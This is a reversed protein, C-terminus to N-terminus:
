IVDEFLEFYGAIKNNTTSSLMILGEGPELEIPSNKFDISTPTGATDTPMRAVESGISLTNSVVVVFDTNASASFLKKNDFKRIVGLASLNSSDIRNAVVEAGFANVRVSSVYAVVGSGVPNYAGLGSYISSIANQIYGSFYRNGDKTLNKFQSLSNVDGVARAEDYTFLQSAHYDVSISVAQDNFFEISDIVKDVASLKSGSRLAQVEETRKNGDRVIIRAKITDAGTVSDIFLSRAGIDDRYYNGPDITIM